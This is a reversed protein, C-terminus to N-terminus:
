GAFFSCIFSYLSARIVFSSSLLVLLCIHLPMEMMQISMALPTIGLAIVAAIKDICTYNSFLNSQTSWFYKEDM